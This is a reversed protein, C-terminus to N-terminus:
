SKSPPTGFRFARMVLTNKISFLATGPRGNEEIGTGAKIDAALCLIKGGTDTFRGSEDVAAQGALFQIVEDDHTM